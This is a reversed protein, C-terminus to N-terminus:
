RFERLESDIDSDKFLKMKVSAYCLQVTLTTPFGTCSQKITLHYNGLPTCLPGRIEALHPCGSCLYFM